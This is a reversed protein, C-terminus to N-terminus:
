SKSRFRRREIARFLNPRLNNNPHSRRVIVDTLEDLHFPALPGLYPIGFSRLSALYTLLMIIGVMIGVYGLLSAFLTMGFQLIRIVYNIATPPLTFTCIGTLAAVIVMIPSVIGAEVAAQGLILAGVISVAQGVQKPMRIGAERMIEFAIMMMFSEVVAPFPVPEKASAISQLLTTPVLEHHFTVTAVYFAPLLMGIMGSLLRILRMVSGIYYNWAYDESVQFAQLFVFPLILAFPTGQVLIAIRGDLLAGIVRDPRETSEILPFMTGRNDTIWEEIYNSELIAAAPIEEIRRHVERLIEPNTLGGVSLVTVNTKTLHGVKCFEAKLRSSPFHYRVLALNNQLSETFGSRPGKVIAESAPEEVNRLQVDITDIVLGSGADDFLLVSMGSALADAADEVTYVNAELQFAPLLQKDQKYLMLLKDLRQTDTMGALYCVTVSQGEDISSHVMILDDTAQMSELLLRKNESANSTLLTKHDDM